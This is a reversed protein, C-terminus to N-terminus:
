EMMFKQPPMTSHGYESFIHPNDETTSIISDAQMNIPMIGLASSVIVGALLFNTVIRFSKM